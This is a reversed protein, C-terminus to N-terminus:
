ITWKIHAFPEKVNVVIYQDVQDGLIAACNAYLVSQPIDHGKKNNDSEFEGPGGM